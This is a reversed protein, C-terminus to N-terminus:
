FHFILTSLILLKLFIVYDIKLVSEHYIWKAKIKQVFIIVFQQNLSFPLWFGGLNLLFQWGCFLNLSGSGQKWKSIDWKWKRNKVILIIWPMWFGINVGMFIGILLVLSTIKSRVAFYDFDLMTRYRRNHEHVAWLPGAQRAWWCLPLLVHFNMTPRKALIESQHAYSKMASLRLRSGGGIAAM